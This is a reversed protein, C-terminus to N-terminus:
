LNYLQQVEADSLVRNYIRIEDLKGTHFETAGQTDAGIYMDTTHDTSPSDTHTTMISVLVGNLYYKATTGDSTVAIHKWTNVPNLTTAFDAAEGNNAFFITADSFFRFQMTPGNYSAKCVVSVLQNENYVWAAITFTNSIGSLSSSNPVRIYDSGGFYYAKNTNGNKDTTFSGGNATGNNNNGSEDNTNGNFPYYAILGNVLTNSLTTFSLELGYATGKTNTAYARVYYIQNESLGTVVNSFSQTNSTSGNSVKNDNTTPSTTISWCFGFDSVTTNATKLLAGYFKASDQGVDTIAITNVEPLTVAPQPCEKKCSIFFLTLITLTILSVRM